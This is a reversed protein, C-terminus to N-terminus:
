TASSVDTHQRNKMKQWSIFGYIDNLFFMVFCLVMPLFSIDSISAFIWLVILILDNFMYGVAYLPSRLFSFSAAIFSTTVSITSVPLNSTGLAGLLFYFIVTVAVSLLLVAVIKKKTVDGVKVEKSDGYPNKLWSTVTMIAMPMSMCLYTIMEGYYKLDWSVISYTISFLIFIMPGLVNGKAVFILASVGVISAFYTLYNKDQPTLFSITIVLVSTFWLLKEFKTLSKISSIVM